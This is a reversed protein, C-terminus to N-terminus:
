DNREHNLRREERKRKGTIRAVAEPTAPVPSLTGAELNLYLQMWSCAGEIIRRVAEVLLSAMVQNIVPGQEDAEVAEACSRRPPAQLLLEPRQMTPLPLSFCIERQPDFQFPRRERNGILIQGYNEGNGADIWWLGYPNRQMQQAIAGRAPGNDVCGIVLGSFRFDVMSVPLISYSVPRAFKLALRRALAESKFCGLEDGTFNQRGLNAEEVRDHDVLVLRARPPLLRCLGEAAFGGTGGCGVVAATFNHHTTFSNDLTYM